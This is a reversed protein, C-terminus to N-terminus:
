VKPPILEAEDKRHTPATTSHQPEASPASAMGGAIKTRLKRKNSM